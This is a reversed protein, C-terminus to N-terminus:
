AGQPPGAGRWPGSAGGSRRRSLTRRPTPKPVRGTGSLPFTRVAKRVVGYKDNIKPLPELGFVSSTWIADDRYPYYKLQGGSEGHWELLRGGNEDHAMLGRGAMEWELSAPSPLQLPYQYRQYRGSRSDWQLVLYCSRSLDVTGGNALSVADHWSQVLEVLIRGAQTPYEAYNNQQIGEQVLATWSYGASNSLELTVHNTREAERLTDRM